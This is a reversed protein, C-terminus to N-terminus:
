KQDGPLLAHLRREFPQRARAVAKYTRASTDLSATAARFAQRAAAVVTRTWGPLVSEGYGVESDPAAPDAPLAVLLHRFPIELRPWYFREVALNDALPQIDERRPQRTKTRTKTQAPDWQPALLQSALAWGADRLARAAEETLSLARRLADLLERDELYALLLPLREHRWLTVSAPKGPDTALGFVALSYETRAEIQGSRRLRDIRALWNFLRPRQLTPEAQQFLTHSDRWLAREASLGLPFTGAKVDVKYCKFPDFFVDSGGALKLNQQIQCQAIRVPEGEPVVHIRRGQWTLYDLYGEPYTGRSTPIRRDNREWAPCDDDTRRFPDSNNYAVLNLALTEFLNDGVALVTFGRVLPTDQFYIPKSKGFGIAFAQTAVVHRAAEAPSLSAPTDDCNHDFLTPNNGAAAGFALRLAPRRDADDMRPTQYFPREEDFFDFRSHQERFYADLAPQDWAGRKWLARWEDLSSPGFRRHLIALLLRHLAVTVLPSPDFMERIETARVLTDRLGLEKTRGGRAFICPIWSEDVLNFNPM